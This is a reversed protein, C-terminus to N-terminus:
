ASIQELSCTDMSCQPSTCGKASTGAKIRCGLTTSMTGCTMWASASSSTMFTAPLMRMKVRALKLLVRVKEKGTPLLYVYLKPYLVLNCGAAQLAM